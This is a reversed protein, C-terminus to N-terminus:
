VMGCVLSKYLGLLVPLCMNACKITNTHWSWQILVYFIHVSNELKSLKVAFKEMPLWNKCPLIGYECIFHGGKTKNSLQSQSYIESSKM